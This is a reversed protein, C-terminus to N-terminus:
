PAVSWFRRRNFLMEQTGVSPAPAAAPPCDPVARPTAAMPTALLTPVLGLRQQVEPNRAATITAVCAILGGAVAGLIFNMM